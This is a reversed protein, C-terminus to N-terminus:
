FDSAFSVLYDLAAMQTSQKQFLRLEDESLLMEKRVINPFEKKLAALRKEGGYIEGSAIYIRTDRPFGLAKLVSTTERPTLPCLGQLRKKESNIEKQKCWPYAYRLDLSCVVVFVWSLPQSSFTRNTVFSYRQVFRMKMLEATKQDSCGYTCGSFAFMDMAYRVHLVVFPGIKRLTSIM